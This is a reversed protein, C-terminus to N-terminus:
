LGVEISIYGNRPAAVFFGADALVYSTYLRDFINNIQGRVTIHNTGLLNEFKYSLSLDCVSYADNRNADTNEIDGFMEGVLRGNLSIWLNKFPQVMATVNALVSPFGIPTNGVVTASDSYKDFQLIENHSLTLNVKLAFADSYQLGAEFEAGYHVVKEANAVVSNGFRDVHDTKLLEDSFPMYYGNVKGTFRWSEDLSIDLAKFGLELDILHEPKVTPSSFDFTSDAKKNFAPLKLSEANYYDALRPERSTYSASFFMSTNEALLYNVGVRPNVFFFPVDFTTSHFGAQLGEAAAHLSDLYIPQENYYHYTQGILQVSASLNLDHSLGYQESLYGSFIDKGGDYEYFHYDVPLNQPLKEAYLLQGWHNSRHIRVEGGLTFMGDDHAFELRPLWGVQKNGVWARTLENGLSSDKIGQFGYREGYVQTLHYTESNSGGFAYPWVGNYDFYGEGQVYFLTNFLTLHDDLKISSLLEYHPQTFSEQENAARESAFTETWNIKRKTRDTFNSRSADDPFIGYYGLGDTIPGGYFNFQLTSRDDIRALSVYYTKTDFFAKDRYGDTHMQSLHTSILYKGDILGSNATLAFKNTGYSGGMASFELARQASPFTEINISGGIAPPGYFASGAGRQVEVNSSYSGLDPMDVWYVSHDEPDNQPIGNVMISERRSDFGRINVYAYGVDLGSESYTVLSPMSKLLNPLEKFAAGQQLEERRITAVPVPSKGEIAPFGTVIVEKSEVHRLTDTKTPTQAFASTATALIALTVITRM